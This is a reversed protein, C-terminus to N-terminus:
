ASCGLYGSDDWADLPTEVRCASLTRWLLLRGRDQRARVAYRLAARHTPTPCLVASLSVRVRSLCWTRAVFKARFGM